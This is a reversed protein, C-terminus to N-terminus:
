REHPAPAVTEAKFLLDSPSDKLNAILEKTEALVVELDYLTSQLPMLTEKVDFAGSDIKQHLGGMVNKVSISADKIGKMTEIGTTDVARTLSYSMEKIGQVAAVSEALLRNIEKNHAELNALTKSTSETIKASNEIIAEINKINKDSMVQEIRSFIVEAKESLSTVTKDLRSFTSPYSPILAYEKPNSNTKLEKADNTGGQLQIYSLGTIGQAEILAYTNEKVPVDEQIRITVLVEEANKHNIAIGRVEGVQVGKFKVPAKDNLGSVSEKTAIKYFKFNGKESYNGLWLISVVGGILLVFLFLGVLIYSLRNEM